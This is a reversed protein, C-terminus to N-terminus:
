DDIRAHPGVTAGVFGGAAQTSLVTADASMLPHWDAAGIGFHFTLRADTGVACLRLIAADAITAAGIRESPGGNCRELFVEVREADARRAGLYYHFAENQFLVLGASVGAARPPELALSVEFRAHQLRRGLYAPNGSGSLADKRPTLLLRRETASVRWWIEHPRRLMVWLHSLSPADFDDRVTFNGTLPLIGAGADRAVGPPAGVILPVREGSPLIRPWGDDTWTVPLLFTERGTAYYRAAFPRCALFMSWWKGDPGVVFDAHGATTVAGPATGDLDRQTLIPNQDWPVFPGTPARGRFIVQSHNEETGGEACCLYYWGNRKYLHPGEIFAPKQTLDAGGDVIVRRPGLLKRSADDFEQVWIARHGHYLPRGEPAGSNVMWARGDDDFFLSPDIGKFDFWVPDSWPGAPDAATVLFNGGAGVMTCVVHFVGGRHRIAPAFLGQSIGLGDYNLQERRDIVHGLQTWNVLDRSRFIPIGPFYAFTSNILYYEDGVRCISPDPYFGALIPNRYSGAPLAQEFVIDRGTYEFWHFAVPPFLTSDGVQRSRSRRGRDRRTEDAEM